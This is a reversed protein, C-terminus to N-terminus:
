KRSDAMFAAHGLAIIRVVTIPTFAGLARLTFPIMFPLLAFPDLALIRTQPTLVFPQLLFEIERAPCRLSLRRREGLSRGCRIGVHRTAPSTAAMPAVAMPVRRRVDVVGDVHRQRLVTGRTASREGFRPHGILDL